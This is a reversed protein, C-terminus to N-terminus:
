MAEERCPEQMAMFTRGVQQLLGGAAEWAVGKRGRGKSLAAVWGFKKIGAKKVRGGKGPAPAACPM